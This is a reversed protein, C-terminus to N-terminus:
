NEFEIDASYVSHLEGAEDRVFLVGSDSIGEARGHITGQLTRVTIRQSFPIAQAEWLLKIPTFGEENYILYFREIQRLLEQLLETRSFERGAEIRLSTAKDELEEEFSAQNVNIGIGIIVAHITEAEAQMETLIGCIKRTGIYVDNPWKIRPELGTIKRVSEAVAVSAIFTFQPVDIIPIQPKLITSSFIGEGRTSTWVRRLRAKGMSQADAVIVTGDAAGDNAKQFATTQTSEVEDYFYLSKGVFKTDLGLLLSDKSYPAGRGGLRYGKNRVADIQFGEKRLSDMHKWVAARSLGLTDAIKQGSVFDGPYASFLELLKARNDNAM